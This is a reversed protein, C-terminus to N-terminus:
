PKRPERDQDLRNPPGADSTLDRAQAIVEITMRVREEVGDINEMNKDIVFNKAYIRTMLMNAQVRYDAVTQRALSRYSKFYRGAGMLHTVSVVAIITLLVLILAFGTFVKTSIRGKM